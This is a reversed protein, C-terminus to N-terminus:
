KKWRYELENRIEDLTRELGYSLLEQLQKYHREIVPIMHIQGTSKTREKLIPLPVDFVIPIPNEDIELIRRLSERGTHTGCVLTDYHELLMTKIIIQKHAFVVPEAHRNYIDGHIATRINDTTVVVRPKNCIETKWKKAYTSKGSHSAGITIYINPKLPDTM